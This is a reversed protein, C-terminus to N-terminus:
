ERELIVLDTALAFGLWGAMMQGPSHRLQPAYFMLVSGAIAGAILVELPFEGLAHEFYFITQLLNRTGTEHVM